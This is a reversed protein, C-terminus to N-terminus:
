SESDPNISGVEKLHSAYARHTVVTITLTIVFVIAGTILKQYLYNGFDIAASDSKGFFELADGLNFGCLYSVSCTQVFEELDPFALLGLAFLLAVFFSVFVKWNKM